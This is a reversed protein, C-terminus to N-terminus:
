KKAEKKHLTWFDALYLNVSKFAVTIIKPIQVSLYQCAIYVCILSSRLATHVHNICKAMGEADKPHM